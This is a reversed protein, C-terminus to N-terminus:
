NRCLEMMPVLAREFGRLDWVAVIPPNLGTEMIAILRAKPSEREAELMEMALYPGGNLSYISRRLYSSHIHWMRNESIGSPHVQHHIQELFFGNNENPNSPTDFEASWDVFLAVGGENCAVYLCNQKDIADLDDIPETFNRILIRDKGSDLETRKELIWSDVFALESGDEAVLWELPEYSELQRDEAAVSSESPEYPDLEASGISFVPPGTESTKTLVDNPVGVFSLALLPLVKLQDSLKRDVRRLSSIQM